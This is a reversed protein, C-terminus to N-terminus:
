SHLLKKVMDCARRAIFDAISNAGLCCFRPIEKSQRNELIGKPKQSFRSMSLFQVWIFEVLSGGFMGDFFLFM